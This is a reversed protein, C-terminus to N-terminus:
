PQILGNGQATRRFHEAEIQEDIWLMSPYLRLLGEWTMGSFAEFVKRDLAILPSLVGNGLDRWFVANLKLHRPQSSVMKSALPTLRMQKLKEHTMGVVSACELRQELGFVVARREVEDLERLGEVLDGATFHVIGM